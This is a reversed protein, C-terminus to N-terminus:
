CRFVFPLEFAYEERADTGTPKREFKKKPPPAAKIDLAKLLQQVTESSTEINQEPPNVYRLLKPHPPPVPKANLDPTVALHYIAERM